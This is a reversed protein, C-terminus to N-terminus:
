NHILGRQLLPAELQIHCCILMCSVVVVVVVVFVPFVGFFYIFNQCFVFLELDTTPGIATM